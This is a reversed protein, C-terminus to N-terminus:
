KELFTLGERLAYKTLEAISHLDLKEMIKQRYTDVTKPSVYIHSAIQKTSWGEALLQLVERERNTLIETSESESPAFSHVYDAIVVGTIGPSLYIRNSVVTRVAQVLEDFACDKLLYGSAGAQLMRGVFRKDSHMSLAIVKTEPLDATIQRTAEIGNVDPMGIDMVAIHPKLDRVLQIAERGNQAESVVGMDPQADILARLGDRIIKHDDALLVKIRM